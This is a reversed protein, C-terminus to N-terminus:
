EADKKKFKGGGKGGKGKGDKGKGFGGGFQLEFKPGTMDEWTKKQSDTLVTLAKEGTERRLAGTRGFGGFGGKGEKSAEKVQKEYDEFLTKLDDKQSASLKLKNQIQEEQLAFGGRMQLQIQELRKYQEPELSSKVAKMQADRVAANLKDMQEESVKLEKAVGPLRLITAADMQGGRGGGGFPFGGGGFQAAVLGVCAATIGLSIGMKWLNRM